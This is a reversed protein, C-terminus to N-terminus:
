TTLYTEITTLALKAFLKKKDLYFVVLVWTISHLDRDIWRVTGISDVPIKTLNSIQNKGGGYTTTLTRVVSGQKIAENM